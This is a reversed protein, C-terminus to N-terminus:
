AGLVPEPRGVDRADLDADAPSCAAASAPAPNLAGPV